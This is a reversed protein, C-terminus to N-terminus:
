NFIIADLPFMKTANVFLFIGTHFAPLIRIIDLLASYISTVGINRNGEM